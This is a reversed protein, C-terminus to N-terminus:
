TYTITYLSYLLLVTGAIDPYTHSTTIQKLKEKTKIEEQDKEEGVYLFSFTEDWSYSKGTCTQLATKPEGRIGITCFRFVTFHYKETRMKHIIHALRRTVIQIVYIKIM